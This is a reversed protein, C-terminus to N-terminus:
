DWYAKYAPSSAFLTDYDPHRICLVSISIEGLTKSYDDIIVGQCDIGGFEESRVSLQEEVRGTNDEGDINSAHRQPDYHSTPEFPGSAVSMPPDAADLRSCGILLGNHFVNVKM